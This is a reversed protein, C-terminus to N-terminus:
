RQALNWIAATTKLTARNAVENNSDGTETIGLMNAATELCDICIGTEMDPAPLISAGDAESRDCYICHLEHQIRKKAM